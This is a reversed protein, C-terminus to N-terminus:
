PTAAPTRRRLRVVGLEGLVRTSPSSASVGRRCRNGRNSSTQHSVQLKTNVDALAAVLEARTVGAPYADTWGNPFCQPCWALDIQTRWPLAKGITFKEAAFTFGRHLWVRRRLDHFTLM